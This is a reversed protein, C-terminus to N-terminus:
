PAISGRVSKERSLRQILENTSASSQPQLQISSQQNSIKDLNRLSLVRSKFPVMSEHSVSPISARELISAVGEKSSFEVVAYVGQFLIFLLVCHKLKSIFEPM